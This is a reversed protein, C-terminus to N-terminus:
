RSNNSSEINHFLLFRRSINDDFQQISFFFDPPMKIARMYQLYHPTAVIVQLQQFITSYKDGADDM